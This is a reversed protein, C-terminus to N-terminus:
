QAVCGSSPDDLAALLPRVHTRRYEVCKCTEVPRRGSIVNGLGYRFRAAFPDCGVADVSDEVQEDSGIERPPHFARIGIDSILVGAAEVVADEQDAICAPLSRVDIVVFQRFTNASSRFMGTKRFNSRHYFDPPPALIAALSLMEHPFASIPRENTVHGFHLSLHVAM